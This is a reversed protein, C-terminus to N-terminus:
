GMALRALERGFVDRRETVAYRGSQCIIFGRTELKRLHRVLARQSVRTAAGLQALTQPGTKLACFLEIRRPHTFATALRYLTEAPQSDKQFAIRLTM